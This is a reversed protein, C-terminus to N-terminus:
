KRFVGYVAAGSGSMSAYVAGQEYLKEKEVKIHPHGPFVSDEFDNHLTDRWQQIPTELLIERISPRDGCPKIGKYALATNISEGEPMVVKVDYGELVDPADSLVDGKGEGWQPRSKLFFACDSGLESCLGRM